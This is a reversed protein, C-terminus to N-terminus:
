LLLLNENKKIKEYGLKKFDEDYLKNVVEISEDDYYLNLDYKKLKFNNWM